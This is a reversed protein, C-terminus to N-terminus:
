SPLTGCATARKGHQLSNFQCLGFGGIGSFVDLHELAELGDALARAHVDARGARAAKMVADPLDDVVGDVFRHRTVGGLHLHGQQLVAADLDDVVASANRHLHVRRTRRRDLDDHGLEYNPFNLNYQQLQELTDFQSESATPVFNEKAEPAVDGYRIAVGRNNM